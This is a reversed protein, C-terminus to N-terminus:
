HKKLNFYLNGTITGARNNKKTYYDCEWRHWIDDRFPGGGFTLTALSEKGVLLADAKDKAEVDLLGFTWESDTDYKSKENIIMWNDDEMAQEVRPGLNTAQISAISPCKNPKKDDDANAPITVLISGTIVTLLINKLM